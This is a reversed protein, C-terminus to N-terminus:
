NVGEAWGGREKSIESSILTYSRSGFDPKPDQLTGPAVSTKVRRVKLPEAKALAPRSM